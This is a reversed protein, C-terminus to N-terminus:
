FCMSQNSLPLANIFFFVKKGLKTEYIWDMLSRLFLLEENTKSKILLLGEEVSIRQNNIVKELIKEHELSPSKIKIYSNPNM